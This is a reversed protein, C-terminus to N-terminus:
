TKWKKNDFKSPTDQIRCYFRSLIRLCVLPLNFGPNVSLLFVLPDLFLFSFVSLLSFTLFPFGIRGHSELKGEGDGRGKKEEKVGDGTL